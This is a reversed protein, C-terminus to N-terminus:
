QGDVETEDDDSEQSSSRACAISWHLTKVFFYNWLTGVVLANTAEFIFYVGGPHNYNQYIFDVVPNLLFGVLASAPWYLLYLGIM